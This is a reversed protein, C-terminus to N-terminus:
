GAYIITVASAILTALVILLIAKIWTIDRRIGSVDGVLHAYHNELWDDFWKPRKSAAM